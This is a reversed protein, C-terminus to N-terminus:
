WGADCEGAASGIVFLLAFKKGARVVPEAGHHDARSGVPRQPDRVHIAGHDFM